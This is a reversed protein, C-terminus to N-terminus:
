KWAAIREKWAFALLSFLSVPSAPQIVRFDVEDPLVCLSLDLRGIENQM